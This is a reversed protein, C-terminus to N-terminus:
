VIKIDIFSYPPWPGTILFQLDGYPKALAVIEEKFIDQQAKDILFVADLMISDSVMKRFKAEPNIPKLAQIIKEAFTEVYQLLAEDSKHKKLKEFLYSTNATSRRFYDGAQIEDTKSKKNIENKTKEFDWLVKLGFEAKDATKKLNNVFATYHTELLQRIADDSHLITDFRVPLLNTYESLKETVGAFELVQEKAWTQKEQYCNSVLASINGSSVLYLEAKCLGTIESFITKLNEGSATQDLIAYIIKSM